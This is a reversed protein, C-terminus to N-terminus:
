RLIESLFKVRPAQKAQNRQALACPLTAWSVPFHPGPLSILHLRSLSMKKIDSWDKFSTDPLCPSVWWSLSNVGELGALMQEKKREKLLCIGHKIRLMNYAMISVWLLLPSFAAGPIWSYSPLCCLQRESSLSPM